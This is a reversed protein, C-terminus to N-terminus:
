GRVTIHLERLLARQRRMMAERQAATRDDRGMLHLLGHALLLAIEASVAHGAARAQVRAREVSIVVDGLHPRDDGPFALVDTPRDRRLFRRNLARIARDSVLAVAVSIRDPAGERRLVRSAIQRLRRVSIGPRSVAVVVDVTM